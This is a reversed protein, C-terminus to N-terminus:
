CQALLQFYRERSMGASRMNNRIIFTPVKPWEPIVIPRKCGPKTMVVHDGEHRVIAFGDLEFVRVLRRWFIPSLRPM